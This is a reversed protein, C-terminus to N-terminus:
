IELEEIYESKIIDYYHHKIKIFNSNNKLDLSTIKLLTKDILIQLKENNELEEKKNKKYDRFCIILNNYIKNFLKQLKIDPIECWESNINEKYYIINKKQKFSILPYISSQVLTTYNSKLIKVFVDVINEIFLDEIIENNVIIKNILEDYNLSPAINENLYDIINVKKKKKIIIKNLDNYKEELKNYKEALEILMLYLTKQSPIKLENNTKNNILECLNKHKELNVKKFYSKGCFNCCYEPHKIRNPINKM